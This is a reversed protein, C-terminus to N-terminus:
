EEYTKSVASYKCYKAVNCKLCKEETPSAVADKKNELIDNMDKIYTTLVKQREPLNHIKVRKAKEGLILYGYPVDKKTFENILRMYVLLQYIYRDKLKKALPKIEVPIYNGNEKVLADPTGSLGQLSSIYKKPPLIKSGDLALLKSSNKIGSLKLRQKIYVSALYLILFSICSLLVVMFVDFDMNSIQYIDNKLSVIIRTFFDTSRTKFKQIPALKTDDFFKDKLFISSIVVVAVVLWIVLLKKTKLVHIDEAKKSWDKHLKDGEKVTSEIKGLNKKNCVSKLKWAYPCVAYIGFEGASIIYKGKSKKIM